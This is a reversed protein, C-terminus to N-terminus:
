VQSSKCQWAGIPVEIIEEQVVKLGQPKKMCGFAPMGYLARCFDGFGGPYNDVIDDATAGVKIRKVRLAKTYADRFHRIAAPDAPGYQFLNTRLSIFVGGPRLVRAIEIMLFPHSIIQGERL